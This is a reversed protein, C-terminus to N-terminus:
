DRMLSLGIIGIGQIAAQEVHCFRVYVGRSNLLSRTQKEVESQLGPLSYYTTGEAVVCVPRGPDKGRGSKVAAGAVELAIMRAGRRVLLRGTELLFTEDAACACMSRYAGPQGDMFVSFDMTGLRVHKAFRAAFGDSLEGEDVANKAVFWFLEGIYRGSIMKELLGMGPMETVADLQKDARGLPMKCFEASEVNIYMSDMGCPDIKQINAGAEIYCTNTGTGMVLGVFGDYECGRHAMSAAVGVTDNFVVTQVGGYGRRHLAAKLSEGLRCQSIGDIQLEKSLAGVCGDHGSEQNIEHAFSFSVRQTAAMYPLVYGAITDFFEAACIPGALGPLPYKEYREVAAAGGEEVRILAVRLNSGGVDVALVPTGEGPSLNGPIYTPVMPLCGEGRLGASMEEVYTDLCAGTDIDNGHMNLRRM